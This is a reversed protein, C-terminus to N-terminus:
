KWFWSEVSLNAVERTFLLYRERSEVSYNSTFASTFSDAPGPKM